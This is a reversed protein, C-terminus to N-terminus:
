RDGCAIIRHLEREVVTSMAIGAVDRADARVAAPILTTALWVLLAHVCGSRNRPRSPPDAVPKAHETPALAALQTTLQMAVLLGVQCAECSQLHTRFAEERQPELEGDAFRVLDLCATEQM